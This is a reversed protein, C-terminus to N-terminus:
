RGRRRRSGASPRSTRTRASCSGPRARARRRRSTPRGSPSRHSGDALWRAMTPASGDRMARQLV